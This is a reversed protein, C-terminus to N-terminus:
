YIKNLVNKTITEQAIYTDTNIVDLIDKEFLHLWPLSKIMGIRKTSKPQRVGHMLMYKYMEFCPLVPMRNSKARKKSLGSPIAIGKSDIDGVYEISNADAKLLVHDLYTWSAHIGNGGGYVVAAFHCNLKNWACLTWWSDFNESIIIKKTKSYECKEFFLPTEPVFAGLLDLPVMEGFCTSLNQDPIVAKENGFIELCREKFPIKDKPRGQEKIWTNLRILLSKRQTDKIQEAFALEPIWIVNQKEKKENTATKMVYNPCGKHYAHWGNGKNSPLKIIDDKELSLLSEVVLRHFNPDNALVPNKAAFEKCLDQFWIKKNQHARIYDIM